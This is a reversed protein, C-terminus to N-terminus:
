LLQACVFMEYSVFCTRNHLSNVEYKLVYLIIHLHTIINSSFVLKSACNCQASHFNPIRVFTVQQLCCTGVACLINTCQYRGSIASFLLGVRLWISDVSSLLLLSCVNVNLHHQRSYIDNVTCSCISDVSSLLLQSCSFITDDVISIAANQLGGYFHYMGQM